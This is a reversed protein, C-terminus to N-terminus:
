VTWQVPYDGEEGYFTAQVTVSNERASDPARFVLLGGTDDGPYEAGSVPSTYDRDFGSSFPEVTGGDVLLSYDVTNLVESEPDVDIGVIVFTEGSGATATQESGFETYSVEDAYISRNLPADVEYTGGDYTTFEEGFELSVPEVVYNVATGEPAIEYDPKDLGEPTIGFQLREEEGAAVEVSDVNTEQPGFSNLSKLLAARYVGAGDGRNEVVVSVTGEQGIEISEPSEVTTDFAPGLVDELSWNVDPPTDSNWDKIINDQIGEGEATEVSFVVTGSESGTSDLQDRNFPDDLENIESLDTQTSLAFGNGSETSLTGYPRRDNNYLEIEADVLAYIRGEEQPTVLRIDEGSGETLSSVFRPSSLNIRYGGDCNLEDGIQLERTTVVVTHSADHETLRFPIEATRDSWYPGITATKTETIQVDEVAISESSQFLGERIDLRATFEGTEGGTNTVSVELNIEECTEVEDPGTIEIDEFYPPGSRVVGRIQNCGALGAAGSM